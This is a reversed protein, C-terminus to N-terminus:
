PQKNAQVYTILYNSFLDLWSYLIERERERNLPSLKSPKTYIINDLKVGYKFTNQANTNM